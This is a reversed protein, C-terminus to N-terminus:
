RIMRTNMSIQNRRKNLEQPSLPKASEIFEKFQLEEIEQRTELWEARKRANKSYLHYNAEITDIARATADVNVGPVLIAGDGIGELEPDDMDVRAFVKYDGTCTNELAEILRKLNHPRGRSPVAVALKTM